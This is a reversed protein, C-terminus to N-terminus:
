ELFDQISTLFQEIDQSATEQDVNYCKILEAVLEEKEIGQELKKWLFAEQENLNIMGNFKKVEDNVPVVVFTDAIQRLVFNKKAKMIRGGWLIVFSKLITTIHLIDYIHIFRMDTNNKRYLM